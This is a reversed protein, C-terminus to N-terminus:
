YGQNQILFPNLLIESSPIPYLADTSQWTTPLVVQMVQNIRGTRKLDYWRHGWEAFLEVQREQEILQLLTATDSAVANPLRARQRISNLDAIGSVIEASHASAEARILYQEALRLIMYYETLPAGNGYVKYKTPYVLSQGSFTRHGLWVSKRNDGNEFTQYLRTTVLYKPTENASAPLLDRGEWTNWTPNVPQLQLIAEPSTKLFVNDLAPLTYLGSGIVETSIEKAKAWNKTFLYVRALLAKAAWKNVRVRNSSPYNVSLLLAAQSLDNVLQSYITAAPTRPIVSSSEYNTTLVLPVDGFLNVLQFYCFARLVLAEGTLSAKLSPTISSEKLRELCLNAAYIFRYAPNWFNGALVSHNTTGIEATSFEEKHDPSFYYLENASLGTYLTTQGASFQAQTAMMQSYIGLVASKATSDNKFVETSIIQNDPPDVEISKSCSLFITTLFLLSFPFVKTSIHM